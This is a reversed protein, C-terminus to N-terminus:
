NFISHCILELKVVERKTKRGSALGTHQGTLCSCSSPGPHKPLQPTQTSSGVSPDAGGPQHGQAMKGLPLPFNGWRSGPVIGSGHNAGVGKSLSPVWPHERNRLAATAAAPARLLRGPTHAQGACGLGARPYGQSCDEAGWLTQPDTCHAHGVGQPGQAQSDCGHAPTWSIRLEEQPLLPARSPSRPLEWASGGFWCQLSERQGLPDGHSRSTYFKPTTLARYGCSHMSPHTHADEM